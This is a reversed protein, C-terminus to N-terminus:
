AHGSAMERAAQTLALALASALTGIRLPSM